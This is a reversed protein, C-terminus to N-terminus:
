YLVVISLPLLVQLYLCIVVDFSFFKLSFLLDSFRKLESLHRFLNREERREMLFALNLFFNCVEIKIRLEPFISLDLSEGLWAFNQLLVFPEIQNACLHSTVQIFRYPLFKISVIFDELFVVVILISPYEFRM